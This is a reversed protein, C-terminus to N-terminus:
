GREREAAAVGSGVDGSRRPGEAGPTAAHQARGLRELAAEIVRETPIEAMMAAGAADDKHSVGSTPARAQLVDSERGYPGVREIRTPGFLAVIPRGFGVGIHLAASDNAIVLASREIVAMLEGVGTKGVLDIVREDEAFRDLLQACQDREGGAAVIAVAEVGANESLLAEVTRVFRDIPWRKGAWRSTPAVVVYRQAGRSLERARERTPEDTYLHVDRVPEIGLHSAIGLM